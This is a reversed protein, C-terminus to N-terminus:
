RGASDQRHGRDVVLREAVACRSDQGRAEHVAVPALAFFAPAAGPDVVQKSRSARGTARPYRWVLRAPLCPHACNPGKRRGSRHRHVTPPRSSGRRRKPTLASRHRRHTARRTASRGTRLSRRASRVWRRRCSWGRSRLRRRREARYPRLSARRAASRVAGAGPLARDCSNGACKLVDAQEAAQSDPLVHLDTEGCGLPVPRAAEIAEGDVGQQTLEIEPRHGVARRHREGVALLPAELNGPREGQHGLEQEEVLRRGTHVIRLRRLQDRRHAADAVARAAANDHDVM